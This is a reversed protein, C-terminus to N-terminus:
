LTGSGDLTVFPPLPARANLVQNGTPNERLQYTFGFNYANGLDTPSTPGQQALLAWVTPVTVKNDDYSFGEMVLTLSTRFVMFNEGPAKETMDNIEGQLFTRIWQANHGPYIVPIYLQPQGATYQLQRMLRQVFLAQTDPRMAYHDINFRYDWAMGMREQQVNSLNNSNFGDAVTANGPWGWRREVHSSYNQSPRFAWGKREVGILPYRVNSPYPEQPLKRLYAFPSNSQELVKDFESFADMPTAFVVPVPYGASVYFTRYLWANLALEHIRMGTLEVDFQSAYTTTYDPVAPAPPITAM